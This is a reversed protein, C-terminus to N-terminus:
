SSDRVITFNGILEDLEQQNLDVEPFDSPTYGGADSKLCHNVILELEKILMEALYEVTSQCYINESYKWSFQLKGDAVFGDIELLYSRSGLPSENQGSSEKALALNPYGLGVTDFKGLYNFSVEAQPLAALQSIIHPDPSIYRLIGYGIGHRPISRLQEKISKLAEGSNETNTLPLLVPFVTTFWGVTRSLDVNEFLEERGHGELDILLHDSGTWGAFSQGLATLLVDNIQTNYAAPVEQLLVQTQAEDLTVLVQKTTAVTNVQKSAPYDTPM